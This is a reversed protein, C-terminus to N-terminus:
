KISLVQCISFVFCFVETLYHGSIVSKKHSGGNKVLIGSLVKLLVSILIYRAIYYIIVSFSDPSFAVLAACYVVRIAGKRIYHEM